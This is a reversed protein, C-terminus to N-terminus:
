LTYMYMHVSIYLKRTYNDVVFHFLSHCLISIIYKIKDYKIKDNIKDYYNRQNFISIDIFGNIFYETFINTDSARNYAIFPFSFTLIPSHSLPKELYKPNLIVSQTETSLLLTQSVLETYHCSSLHIIRPKSQDGVANRLVQFGTPRHCGVPIVDCPPAHMVVSPNHWYAQRRGYNIESLRSLTDIGRIAVDNRDLFQSPFLATLRKKM